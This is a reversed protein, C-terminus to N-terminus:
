IASLPSPLLIFMKRGAVSALFTGLAPNPLPPAHLDHPLSVCAPGRQPKMLQLKGSLYHSLADGVPTVPWNVHRSVARPAM